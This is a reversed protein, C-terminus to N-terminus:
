GVHILLSNHFSLGPKRCDDGNKQSKGKEEDRRRLANRLDFPFGSVDDQEDAVAHVDFVFDGGATIEVAFVEVQGEM